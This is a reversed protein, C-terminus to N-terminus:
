QIYEENGTEKFIKMAKALCETAKEDMGLHQHYILAMNYLTIGMGLENGTEKDWELLEDFWKFAEQFKKERVYTVAMNSLSKSVEPKMDLDKYIQIMETLMERAKEYEGRNTHIIALENLNHAVGAMYGAGRAMAISKNFNVIAKDIEGKSVLYQGKKYRQEARKIQVSRVSCASFLFISLLVFSVIKYKDSHNCMKGMRNIRDFFTTEFRGRKELGPGMM